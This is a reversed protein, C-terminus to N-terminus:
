SPIQPTSVNNSCDKLVVWELWEVTNPIPWLSTTVMHDGFPLSGCQYKFIQNLRRLNSTTAIALTHPFQIFVSTLMFSCLRDEVCQRITMYESGLCYPCWYHFTSGKVQVFLQQRPGIHLSSSIILHLRFIIASLVSSKGPLALNPQSMMRSVIRWTGTLCM